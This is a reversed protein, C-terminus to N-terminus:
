HKQYERPGVDSVDIPEFGVQFAPSDPDLNFDGNEPDKFRPDAYYSNIDMIPFSVFFDRPRRKIKWEEFTLGAFEPNPNDPNWYINHSIGTMSQIHFFRFKHIIFHNFKQIVSLQYSNERLIPIMLIKFEHIYKHSM